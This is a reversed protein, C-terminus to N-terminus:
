IKVVTNTIRGGELRRFVIEELRLYTVGHKCLKRQGCLMLSRFIQAKVAEHRKTAKFVVIGRHTCIAFQHENLRNEVTVLIRRHEQAYLMLEHDSVQRGRLSPVDCVWEAKVKGWSKIEQALEGQLCEDLLLRLDTTL